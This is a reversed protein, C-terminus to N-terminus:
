DLSLQLREIVKDWQVKEDKIRETMGEPTSFEPTFYLARIREQIEPRALVEKTLDNLKAVIEAPTGAPVFLADWSIAEFDEFGANSAVAPMGPVLESEELSTVALARVKGSSVQPMAIGPVMFAGQIDGAIVASIIQPFGSYPIHALEIGAQNELMAMSLHSASGPGVSGYNLGGKEKKALEIFEQLTTAPSNAPVILVNPSTGVLSIPQLDVLPDYGLSKYLTPATVMPGNITLLMTYGDPKAKSVYRTGINGGAGPKNEVIITQGLEKSMPEALTRALIDPSSGAPFPVVMQITKTPWDAALASTSLAVAALTGGLAVALRKPFSTIRM